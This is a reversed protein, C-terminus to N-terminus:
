DGGKLAFPAAVFWLIAGVIMANKMASDALAGAAFLIPPIVTLGLAALGVLRAALNM